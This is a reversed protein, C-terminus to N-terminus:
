KKSLIFWQHRRQYLCYSFWVSSMSLMRAARATLSRANGVEEEAEEVEKVVFLERQLMLPLPLTV